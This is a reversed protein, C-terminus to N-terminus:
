NNKKAAATQLKEWAEVSEKPPTGDSCVNMQFDQRYVLKEGTKTPVNEQVLSINLRRCDPQSFTKITTIRAYVPSSSQTGSQWFTALKGTVEGEASGEAAATRILSTLDEAAVSQAAAALLLAISAAKFM